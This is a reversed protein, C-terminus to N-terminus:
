AFSMEIAAEAPMCERTRQHLFEGCTRWDPVRLRKPFVGERQIKQLAQDAGGEIQSVVWLAAGCQRKLWDLVDAYTIEMRKQLTRVRVQKESIFNLAPYMAALYAGPQLLCEFPVIRSVSRLEGELRLWPSSKDGLQKGKEYGRFYKGNERAGVYFSRGKGNIRKWNGRQECDPMRGGAGFLGADYWGAVDDVSNVGEYDDYALDVRTIRAGDARKLFEVCRQEWGERAAACGEGSLSVLVTGRQGGHCVLGYGDGLVYSREYFNAGKDRQGSIGFGFIGQCVMSVECIVEDDTVGRRQIRFADEHCTFNLWDIFAADGGHGRRGPIEMVEGDELVLRAAIWAPGVDLVKGGTNGVPPAKPALPGGDRSRAAQAADRKLKASLDSLSVVGMGDKEALSFERQTRKGPKLSM